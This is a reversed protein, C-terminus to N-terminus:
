RGAMARCGGVRRRGAAGAAILTKVKATHRLKFLCPLGREEAASLLVENGYGCDGRVMAPWHTRPLADLAGLAGAAGHRAAHEKGGLVEVGSASGRTPWSIATTPM